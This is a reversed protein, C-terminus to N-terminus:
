DSFDQTMWVTGSSDVTVAVGISTFTSSLLNQRHGDDPASENLMEHTLNLAIETIQSDKLATRGNGINEGASTWHVGAETERQGLSPENVCQHSLGCGDEMLIDHSIASSILNPDVNYPPLGADARAQNIVALVEAAAANKQQQAGPPSTRGGPPSPPPSSPSPTHPSHPSGTGRQPSGNGPRDHTRSAGSSRPVGTGSSTGQGTRRACGDAISV